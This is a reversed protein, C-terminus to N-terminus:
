RSGQGALYRFQADRDQHQRGETVKANTLQVSSPRVALDVWARSGVFIVSARSLM